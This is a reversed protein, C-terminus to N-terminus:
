RSPIRTESLRRIEEALATALQELAADQADRLVADDEMLMAPGQRDARGEATHAAYIRDTPVDHLSGRALFAAEIETGSAVYAGVLTAYWWASSNNFRDVAAVGDVILVADAAYRRGAQRVAVPDFGRILPDELLFVESLFRPVLSEALRAQLREKHASTWSAQRVTRFPPSTNTVFFLGLRIPAPMRPREHLELDLALDPGANLKHEMALREIGQRDACAALSVCLCGGLIWRTPSM